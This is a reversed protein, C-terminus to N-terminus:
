LYLYKLDLTSPCCGGGAGGFATGAALYPALADRPTAANAAALDQTM